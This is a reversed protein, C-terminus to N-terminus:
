QFVNSYVSANAITFVGKALKLWHNTFKVTKVLPFILGKKYSKVPIKEFVYETERWLKLSLNSYPVKKDKIIPTLWKGIKVPSGLRTKICNSRYPHGFFDAWIINRWCKQFTTKTIKTKKLLYFYNKIYNQERLHRKWRDLSM